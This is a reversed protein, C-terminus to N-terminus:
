FSFFNLWMNINAHVPSGKIQLSAKALVKDYRQTKTKYFQVLFLDVLSMQKHCNQTLRRFMCM